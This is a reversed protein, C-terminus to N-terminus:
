PVYLFENSGLLMHCLHSLSKQALEEGPVGSGALEAAHQSLLEQSWTIEQGSPERGLAIRFALSIRAASDGSAASRIVRAAFKQAADIVLADNLLTLSQSVVASQQRNPCNMSMTPQDFVGLLSLHYHRRALVYLSRRSKTESGPKNEGQLVVMGDPRVELPLSPGGPTLDLQGSTALIADRVIEADLRRLPMRALLRNDPDLRSADAAAGGVAPSSGQRYVASTMLLKLLPKIKRGDTVFRCALWDLLEPHTPQAGSTGLNESTEVIGKGFLHQWIRNVRVRAALGGAPSSWDTLWHVLALRRGSTEGVPQPSGAIAGPPKAHTESESACLVAFFGPEVVAGPTQYNGRELLHTAPPPGVDYAAQITGWRRRTQEIAGVQQEIGVIQDKQPQSLAAAIESEAVDLAAKFKDGLYEQVMTRKEVPTEFAQKVDARIQEPLTAM